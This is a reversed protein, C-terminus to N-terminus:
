KLLKLLKKKQEPTVWFTVRANSDSTIKIKGYTKTLVFADKGEITVKDSALDIPKGGLSFTIIRGEIEKINDESDVHLKTLEADFVFPLNDHTAKEYKAEAAFCCTGWITLSIMCIIIFLKKM